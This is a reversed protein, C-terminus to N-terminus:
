ENIFLTRNSALHELRRRLWVSPHREDQEAAERIKALLDPNDKLEVTISTGSGKPGRTSKEAM